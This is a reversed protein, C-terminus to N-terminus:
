LFDDDFDMGAATGGGAIVSQQSYMQYVQEASTADEPSKDDRVRIFRPFRLAIGKDPHAIGQAACHVPSISLDAAKIEWVQSVEFWVDPKISPVDKYTVNGEPASIVKDKFYEYHKKLDEDSYGTGAKCCTQYEDQDPDYCALLYSGFTGIRKGVGYWAGVVVLDLSDGVGDMYDKKLKLWNLSRKSPEYTADDDLTKLMLGPRLYSSNKLLIHM